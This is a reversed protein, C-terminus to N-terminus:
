FWLSYINEENTYRNEETATNWNATYIDYFNLWINLMTCWHFILHFIHIFHSFIYLRKTIIFNITSIVLSALRFVKMNIKCSQDCLIPLTLTIESYEFLDERLLFHVSYDDYVSFWINLIICWNVILRFYYIFYSFSNLRKSIIFFSTCIILSIWFFIM